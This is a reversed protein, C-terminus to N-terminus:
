HRPATAPDAPLVQDLHSRSSIALKTFVKRLHYQVTRASIFFRAGIEPNSLGDRV